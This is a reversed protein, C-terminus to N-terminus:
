SVHCGSETQGTVYLPEKLPDKVWRHVIPLKVFFDIDVVCPSFPVSTSPVDKKSVAPKLVSDTILSIRETKTSVPDEIEYSRGEYFTIAENNSPERVDSDRGFAVIANFDSAKDTVRVEVTGTQPAHCYSASGYPIWEPEGDPVWVPRGGISDRKVHQVIYTPYERTYTVFVFCNSLAVFSGHYEIRRHKDSFNDYITLNKGAEWILYYSKVEAKM